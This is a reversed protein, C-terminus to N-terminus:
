CKCTPNRSLILFKFFTEYKM